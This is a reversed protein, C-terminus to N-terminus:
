TFNDIFSSLLIYLSIGVEIIDLTITELHVVKANVSGAICSKKPIDNDQIKANLYSIFGRM